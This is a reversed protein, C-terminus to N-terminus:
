DNDAEKEQKPSKQTFFYTVIESEIKLLEAAKAVESISWDTKGTLLRSMKQHSIEMRDAFLGFTKYM